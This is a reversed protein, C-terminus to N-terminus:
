FSATAAHANRTISSISAYDAITRSPREHGEPLFRLMDSRAKRSSVTGCSSACCYVLRHQCTQPYRQCRRNEQLMLACVSQLRQQTIRSQTMEHPPKRNPKLASPCLACLPRLTPPFRWRADERGRIRLQRDCDSGEVGGSGVAKSFGGRRVRQARQREANFLTSFSWCSVVCLGYDQGLIAEVDSAADAPSFRKRFPALGDGAPEELVLSGSLLHRTGLIKASTDHGSSEGSGPSGLCGMCILEPLAFLILSYLMTLMQPATKCAPM